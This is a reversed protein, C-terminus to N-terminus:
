HLAQNGNAQIIWLEKLSPYGKQLFPVIQTQSRVPLYWLILFSIFQFLNQLQNHFLNNTYIHNSPIKSVMHTYIPPLHCILKISGSLSRVPITTPLKPNSNYYPSSLLPTAYSHRQISHRTLGKSDTLPKANLFNYKLLALKLDLPVKIVEARFIYDMVQSSRNGDCYLITTDM